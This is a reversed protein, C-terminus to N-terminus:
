LNKPKGFKGGSTREPYYYFLFCSFEARGGGAKRRQGASPVKSPL